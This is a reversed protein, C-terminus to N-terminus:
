EVNNGNDEASLRSLLESFGDGERLIALIREQNVEKSFAATIFAEVIDVDVKEVVAKRIIPLAWECTEVALCREKLEQFLEKSDVNESFIQLRVLQEVFVDMDIKDGLVRLVFLACCLNPTMNELHLSARVRDSRECIERVFKTIEHLISYFGEYNLAGMLRVFDIEIDDFAIRDFHRVVEQMLEGIKCTNLVIDPRPNSLWRLLVVVLKALLRSSVFPVMMMWFRDICIEVDEESELSGEFLDECYKLVDPNIPIILPLTHLFMRVDSTLRGRTAERLVNLYGPCNLARTVIEPDLSKACTFLQRYMSACFQSFIAFCRQCIEGFKPAIQDPYRCMFCVMASWRNDNEKADRSIASLLKFIRDFSQCKCLGIMWDLVCLFGVLIRADSRIQRKMMAIGATLLEDRLRILDRREIEADSDRDRLGQTLPYNTGTVNYELYSPFLNYTLAEFNDVVGSNGFLFAPLILTIYYKRLCKALELDGRVVANLYSTIVDIPRALRTAIELTSCTGSVILGIAITMVEHNQLFSCDLLDIVNCKLTRVVYLFDKRHEESLIAKSAIETIRNRLGDYDKICALCSSM